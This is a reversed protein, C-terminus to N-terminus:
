ESSMSPTGVRQEIASLTAAGKAARGPINADLIVWDALEEVPFSVLEGPLGGSELTATPESLLDGEIRFPSWSVPRVWVFERSGDTTRTQWLVLFNLQEHPLSDNFQERAAPATKQAQAILPALEELADANLVVRATSEGPTHVWASPAADAIGPSPAAPPECAQLAIVCSLLTM